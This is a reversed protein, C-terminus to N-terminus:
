EDNKLIKQIGYYIHRVCFQRFAEASVQSAGYGTANAGRVEGSRVYYLLSGLMKDM